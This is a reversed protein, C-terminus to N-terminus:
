RRRRDPWGRRHRALLRMALSHPKVRDLVRQRFLGRLLFQGGEDLGEVGIGRDVANEHLQGRGFCRLDSGMM